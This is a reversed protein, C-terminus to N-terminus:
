DPVVVQRRVLDLLQQSRRLGGYDRSNLIVADKEVKSCDEGFIFRVEGQRHQAKGVLEGLGARTECNGFFLPKKGIIKVTYFLAPRHIIKPRTQIRERRKPIRWVEDLFKVSSSM